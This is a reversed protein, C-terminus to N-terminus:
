KVAFAGYLVNNKTFELKNVLKVMDGDRHLVYGEHATVEYGKKTLVFTKFTNELPDLKKIIQLKLNQVEKYLAIMAKFKDRNNEVYEMSKKTLEVKEAITKPSKLEGIIKNMQLGYFTIMQELTKNLDTTRAGGTKPKIEDQFYRKVYPAIHYKDAGTPNGTGSGQTVLYDLFDGCKGCEIEIKAVTNDFNREEYPTLGIKDLPTDNDVVFIDDTLKLKNSGLGGKARMQSLLPKHNLREDPGKYHTHFVVGIKAKRAAKGVDQDVPIGYAITNPKFTYLTEGHVNETKLDGHTWLLDGQIVGEIGLQKFYRLCYKLKEALDPKDGYYDDVDLEGYCLEPKKNFVSKKGVFFLGNQPDKGCVISPAGDWKTQLYGTGGCGLMERIERLDGVIKKCGKVGYNLMEDELHELHKLQTFKKWHQQAM